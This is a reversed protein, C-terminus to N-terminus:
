SLPRSCNSLTRFYYILTGSYNILRRIMQWDETATILRGPSKYTKQFLQLGEPLTRKHWNECLMVSNHKWLKQKWWPTEVSHPHDMVIVDYHAHNRRLDHINIWVCIVSFILAWHWQGKHPSKVPSRHIGRLFPWYRPCHKWKIVDDHSGVSVGNAIDM